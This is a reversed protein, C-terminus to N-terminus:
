GTLEEYTLRKGFARRIIADVRKMSPIKCNGENLRFSFEDIYKQLHKISFHHFTGYFGRKLLAWVSEISNIHAMGNVFEKASHNKIKFTSVQNNFLYIYDATNLQGPVIINFTELQSNTSPNMYNTFYIYYSNM